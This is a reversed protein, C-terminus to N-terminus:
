NKKCNHQTSINVDSASKDPIDKFPGRLRETLSITCFDKISTLSFPVSPTLTVPLFLQKNALVIHQHFRKKKEIFLRYLKIPAALTVSIDFEVEFLM